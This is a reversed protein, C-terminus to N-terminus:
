NITVVINPIVQNTDSTLANEPGDEKKGDPDTQNIPNGDDSDNQDGPTPDNKEGPNGAPANEDPPPNTNSDKHEEASNKGPNKSDVPITHGPSATGNPDKSSGPVTIHAKIEPDLLDLVTNDVVKDTTIGLLLNRATEKAQERNVEWFSINDLYLGVGPLTQSVIKSSDFSAAVKSLKLIDMLKLDTEVIDMIQPILKPLKTITSAQLMEKAIAKLVKQQRATRGIDAMADNRWRAYQLALSGTMRQEGKKLNILGDVKDGTYFPGMDKEVDLTIGGMTDIISKFGEFNTLIYGDLPIGTLETVQKFLEPLGRHMVVSNIKLLSGSGPLSIRTDRPISLMSIINTDPDVSAVILTDTNYSSEGPRKDAGILLVSVRKDLKASNEGSPNPTLDFEHGDNDQTFYAYGFAATGTLIGALLVAIMIIAKRKKSYKGKM